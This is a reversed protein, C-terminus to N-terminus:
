HINNDNYRRGSVTLGAICRSADTLADDEFVSVAVDDLPVDGLASAPVKLVYECGENVCLPAPRQQHESEGKDQRPQQERKDPPQDDEGVPIKSGRSIAVLGKGRAKVINIGEGTAEEERNFGLM